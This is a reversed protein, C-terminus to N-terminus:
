IYVQFQSQEWKVGILRCLLEVNSIVSTRVEHKHDDRMRMTLHNRDVKVDVIDAWAYTEWAATTM